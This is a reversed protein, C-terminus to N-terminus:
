SPCTCDLQERPRFGRVWALFDAFANTRLVFRPSRQAPIGFCVSHGHRVLRVCRRKRRACARREFCVYACSVVGCPASPNGCRRCFVTTCARAQFWRSTRLRFQASLDLQPRSLVTFLDQLLSSFPSAGREQSARWMDLAGISDAVVREHCACM